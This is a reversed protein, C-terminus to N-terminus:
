NGQLDINIEARSLLYRVIDVCDLSCAIMLANKDDDSKIQIKENAERLPQNVDFNPNNSLIETLEEVHNQVILNYITSRRVDVEESLSYATSSSASDM